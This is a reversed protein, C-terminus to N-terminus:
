GYLRQGKSLLGRCREGPSVAVRDLLFVLLELGHGM